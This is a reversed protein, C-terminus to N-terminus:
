AFCTFAAREAVEGIRILSSLWFALHMGFASVCYFICSFACIQVSWAVVGSPECLRSGRGCDRQREDGDRQVRRQRRVARAVGDARADRLHLGDERTVPQGLVERQVDEEGGYVQAGRVEQM